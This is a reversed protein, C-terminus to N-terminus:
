NNLNAHSALNQRLLYGELEWVKEVAIARAERRGTAWDQQSPDISGYNHGLVKAGNRLTLMCVTVTSDPFVHFAEKVIVADIHAATLRNVPQGGAVVVAEILKAHPVKADTCNAHTENQATKEIM